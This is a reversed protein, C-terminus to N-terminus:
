KSKKHRPILTLYNLKSFTECYYQYVLFEKKVTSNLRNEKFNHFYFFKDGVLLFVGSLNKSLVNLYYVGNLESHCIQYNFHFVLDGYLTWFMDKEGIAAHFDIKICLIYPLSLNDILGGYKGIKQIFRSNDANLRREDIDISNSNGMLCVHDYKSDVRIIKFTFNNEITIQNGEKCNYVIWESLKKVITEKDYLNVDFYEDKFRMELWCGVKINQVEDFLCNEFDNRMMDKETPNLKVVEVIIQSKDKVITLDPTPKGYTKDYSVEFGLKAFFEYFSLEALMSLFNNKDKENRLKKVFKKKSVDDIADLRSIIEPHYELYKNWM